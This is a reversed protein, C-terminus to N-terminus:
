ALWMARLPIRRHYLERSLDVGLASLSALVHQGFADAGVRGLVGVKAGLKAMQSACINASGGLEVVYGEVMQEVQGFAPRVNGRVILDVCMDAVSLVDYTPKKMGQLKGAM